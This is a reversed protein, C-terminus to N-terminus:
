GSKVYTNRVHLIPWDEAWDNKRLADAIQEAETLPSDSYTHVVLPRAPPSTDVELRKLRRAYDTM